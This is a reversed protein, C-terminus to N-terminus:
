PLTRKHGSRRHAPLRAPASSTWIQGGKWIRAASLDVRLVPEPAGPLTSAVPSMLGPPLGDGFQPLSHALQALRSRLLPGALRLTYGTRTLHVTLLAPAPGGLNLPLPLMTVEEGSVTASLDSDVFPHAGALTLDAKQVGFSGSIAPASPSVKARSTEGPNAKVPNPKASTSAVEAPDAFGINGFALGSAHLNRDVRPSAAKLINLLAEAPVDAFVADAHGSAISTVNPMSGSVTMGNNGDPTPWVCRIKDLRHFLALANAACRIDASLPADPVFDARRLSSLQLESSIASDGATGKAEARLTLEGRLGADRRLLIWSAAGLPANSWSASLNVPVDSLQPGRGLSGELRLTGTDSAATDTRAPHAELRLNWRDPQPLWLAFSAETLSIPLKEVGSKLNVRAGTAEIYPFRPAAGATRQATPAAKVHSAQLLISELNWRGDPLRVLNVSPAALRIRSFEVRRGWLSHIRLTVIVSNARIIPESGFAPDEGVIFNKLTFGPMPLLNLTVSDIRVSRGLSASISSAIQRRYHNMSVLPPIFLLGALTALIAVVQLIRRLPPRELPRPDRDEPSFDEMGVVPLYAPELSSRPLASTATSPEGLAPGRARRGDAIGDPQSDM